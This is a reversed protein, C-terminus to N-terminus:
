HTQDYLLLTSSKNNNNNNSNSKKGKKKARRREIVSLAPAVKSFKVSTSTPGVAKVSVASLHGGTGDEVAPCDVGVATHDANIM